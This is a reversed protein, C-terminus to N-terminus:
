KTREEARKWKMMPSRLLQSLQRGVGSAGLWDSWGAWGDNAYVHHPADPIDIPKIGSNVYDRWEGESKLGLSRAFARAKKFSRYRRDARLRRDV